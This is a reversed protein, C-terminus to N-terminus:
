EIPLPILRVEQQYSERMVDAYFAMPVLGVEARREDVRDWDITAKPRFVGDEDSTFQTGYVQPKGQASLVRDTLLAFDKGSAQEQAVLPEMLGLVRQQLEPRADAHQALLWAAHAGDEGVMDITPWGHTEIMAELFDSSEADIENMARMAEAGDGDFRISGDEGRTAIQMAAVVAARAEQDREKLDLLRARLQTYDHTQDASVIMGPKEHHISSACGVLISPLTILSVCIPNLHM